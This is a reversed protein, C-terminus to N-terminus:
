GEDSSEENVRCWGYLAILAAEAVGDCGEFDFWNDPMLEQALLISQDKDSGLDFAAKWERPTVETVEVPLTSLVGRVFGTTFGFNFTSSVGQRPMAHVREVFAPLIVPDSELWPPEDDPYSTRMIWYHVSNVAGAVDTGLLDYAVTVKGRAVYTPPTSIALRGAYRHAVQNRKGDYVVVAGYMGPDVGIVFRHKM